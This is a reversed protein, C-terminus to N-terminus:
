TKFSSSIEIYAAIVQLPCRSIVLVQMQKRAVSLSHLKSWFSPPHGGREYFKIKGNNQLLHM